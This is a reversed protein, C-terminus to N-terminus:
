QASKGSWWSEVVPGYLPTIEPTAINPWLAFLDTGRYFLPIVYVGSFIVRDLARAATVLEERTQAALIKQVLADVAASKVGAYNRSGKVDAAASGWYFSQENGPSLSNVVRTLILDYDFDNLRAQFQAADVTRVDAHVGIRSLTRAYELAIKEDQPDSLLLEFRFAEGKGNKMVGNQVTWGAEAFLDTAKRLNARLKEGGGTVPLLGTVSYVDPPLDKKFPELLARENESPAGHAALESNSFVSDIWKYADRYLTRNIWEFDFAQLLALRVRRDALSTKRTNIFFGRFPEPRQHPFALTRFSDKKEKSMRELETWRKPDNERRADIQHATFAEQAINEDRYYDYRITDFNCQGRRAPLDKGWYNADRTFTTSRGASVDTIKYPGSGVPPTLSTQDFGQKEFVHKPLVNLLGMIMPMEHDISGDENRKFYFTIANGKEVEAREVKRYYSRHNPRGKDKLTIWSYRVDEATLPTGDQWRAKPNIFFRIATRDPKMEVREAILPYLTFPEDQSRAMLSEYVYTMGEAPKGKVIYANLSDFTGVINLRLMGGRPAGKNVYPFHQFDAPLKATGHMAIAHSAIWAEEAKAPYAFVSLVFLLAMGAFAPMAHLFPKRTM